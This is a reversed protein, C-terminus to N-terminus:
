VVSAEKLFGVDELWIQEDELATEDLLFWPKCFVYVFVTIVSTLM